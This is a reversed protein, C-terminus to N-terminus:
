GHAGLGGLFWRGGECVVLVVRLGQAVGLGVVISGRCVVGYRGMCVCVGPLSGESGSGCGCADCWWGGTGICRDAACGIVSGAVLWCAAVVHMEGASSGRLEM